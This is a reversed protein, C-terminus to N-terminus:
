PKEKAVKQASQRYLCYNCNVSSPPIKKNELCQYAKDIVDSVWSDDGQYPIIQVDFDLRGDFAQRDKQGNAYVFYGTNSVKFGNKRFLWQYIEMQRKYGQRYDAELTIESDTATAKYDVIMLEKNPNIWVDDVAGYILINKTKDLYQIGTFNHRWKAMEPHAFPVADIGYTAMMPHAQNKVRHIDFEKKLLADVANNLTFPFSAPRSVGLKRDLYFCQPCEIFLELKTRSLKFPEQNGASWLNKKRFGNNYM